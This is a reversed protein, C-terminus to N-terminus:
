KKIMEAEGDKEDAKRIMEEDSLGEPYGMEQAEQLNRRKIGAVKIQRIVESHDMEEFNDPVDATVNTFGGYELIAEEGNRKAEILEEFCEAVTRGENSIVKM